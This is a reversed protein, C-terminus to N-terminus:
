PFLVKLPTILLSVLYALANTWPLVKWDPRIKEPLTLFRGLTYCRFPAESPPSAGAKSVFVLCPQFLKGRISSYFLKYLM